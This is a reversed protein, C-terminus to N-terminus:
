KSAFKVFDIVFFTQLVSVLVIEFRQPFNSVSKPFSFCLLSFFRICLLTRSLARDCTDLSTFCNKTLSRARHSKKRKGFRLFHSNQRRYLDRCGSSEVM